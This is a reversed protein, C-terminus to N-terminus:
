CIRFIEALATTFNDQLDSSEALLKLYSQISDEIDYYLNTINVGFRYDFELRHSGLLPYSEPRSIKEVM